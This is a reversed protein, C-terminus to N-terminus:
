NYNNMHLLFMQNKVYLYLTVKEEALGNELYTGGSNVLRSIKGPTNIQDKWRRLPSIVHGDNNFAIVGIFDDDKMQDFISIAQAKEINVVTGGSTEFGSSISIDILLVMNLDTIDEITPSGIRVPLLTQIQSSAYGGLDYSSKGGIVYLGNGDLVFDTLDNFHADIQSSPIDNLIIAFYPRLNQPIISVKDMDYIESVVDEIPSAVKTVYLIKPKDLSNIVKFFINNESREDSLALKAEVNHYGARFSIDMPEIHDGNAKFTKFTVGDLLVTVTYEREDSSQVQVYFTSSLDRLVVKPGLIIISADNKEQNMDLANVTSNLSSALILVDKLDRGYNTNGDSLLLINDEGLLNSLVINGVPSRYEDGFEIVNVGLEELTAILKKSDDKYLDMSNSRDILFNVTTEHMETRVDSVFPAALLVIITTFIILRSFFVIMRLRKRNPGKTFRHFVLLMLFIFMVPILAFFSLSEFEIM